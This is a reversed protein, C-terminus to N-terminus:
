VSNLYEKITQALSESIGEVKMIDKVSAAAIARQSGFYNILAKKRKAGVNPINDLLSKTYNKSRLKRHSTIAFRHAEDRLKQILWLAPDNKKPSITTGDMKHLKERGANRDVGKSVAVFEVNDIGMEVMQEMVSSLQGKGGDILVLDPVPTEGKQMRLFRRKFVHKMMAFDDGATVDDSSINFKRYQKKEFGYNSAVIMAGVMNTGQIHSNDYVEIRKPIDSLKLLKTLEELQKSWQSKEILKRQLAEKANKSVMDMVEKRKGRKPVSITVKQKIRESLATELIEKDEPMHSVLIQPAPVHSAYFQGLFGDIIDHENADIDHSPFYSRHGYSRGNRYLFIQIAAKGNDYYIAIVDINENGQFNITQHSQIQAIASLRDRWIAAEEYAMNNSAEIMLQQCRKQIESSKGKLFDKAQKVSANYDAKSIKGVCPASCRKIQFLMCPRSRNKFVNDSCSRLQFIQQLMQLTEVVASNSAFPGFYEGKKSRNGRYKEIRPYDDYSTLLIDPFSKDDRLDINFKPKLSKILNSELLLAEGESSTLIFEMKKTLSIMYQIRYPKDYPRSYSTVRNKLNKAKGIYLINDDKDLMRYVGSSTTLDKTYSKILKIANTLNLENSM